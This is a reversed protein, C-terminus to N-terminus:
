SEGRLVPQVLFDPKRKDADIRGDWPVWRKGRRMWYQYGRGSHYIRKIELPSLTQYAWKTIAAFKAAQFSRYRAYIGAGNYSTVAYQWGVPDAHLPIPPSSQPRRSALPSSGHAASSSAVVAHGHATDLHCGCACRWDGDTASYPCTEHQKIRCDFSTIWAPDKPRLVDEIHYPFNAQIRKTDVNVREERNHGLAMRGDGAESEIAAPTGGPQDMWLHRQSEDSQRTVTTM